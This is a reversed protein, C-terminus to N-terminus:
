RVNEFIYRSGDKKNMPVQDGNLLANGYEVCSLDSGNEAAIRFYEAAKKKDM